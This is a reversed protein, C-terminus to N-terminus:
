AELISATSLEGDWVGSAYLQSEGDIMNSQDIRFKYKGPNLTVRYFYTTTTATAVSIVVDPTFVRYDGNQFISLRTVTSPSGGTVTGTIQKVFCSVPKKIKIIVEEDASAGAPDVDALVVVASGATDGEFAYTGAAAPLTGITM